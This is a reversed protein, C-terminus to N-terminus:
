KYEAAAAEVEEQVAAVASDLDMRGALYETMYTTIANLYTNVYGSMPFSRLDSTQLLQAGAKVADTVDMAELAKLASIRPMFNGRNYGGEARYAMADKGTLYALVQWTADPNPTKANMCFVGGTLMNANPLAAIGYDEGYVLNLKDASEQFGALGSDGNFRMAAQGTLVPDTETCRTTYFTDAWNKAQDYGGLADLLTKQFEHTKRIGENDFDPNGDADVWDAGFAVPWLVNDLWPFTPHLGVVQISGDEGLVTCDLACQLMEDMTTPFHDWNHEALVKPNYLIYTTSATFPISYIKGDVSCLNWIAPLFDDKDFEADSNVYSTLEVIAGEAALSPATEWNAQFIDPVNSGAIATVVADANKANSLEIKIDEHTANWDDVLKQFRNAEATPEESEAQYTWVTVTIPGSAPPETQSDTQKPPDSQKSGETGKPPQSETQGAPGCAVLGLVMIAALLLAILKKM